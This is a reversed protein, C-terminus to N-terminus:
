NQRHTKKKSGKKWEKDEKNAKRGWVGQRKKKNRQRQRRGSGWPTHTHTHTPVRACTCTYKRVLKKQKINKKKMWESEEEKYRWKMREKQIM